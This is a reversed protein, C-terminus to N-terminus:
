SEEKLPVGCWPCFDYRPEIANFAVDNTFFESVKGEIENYCRRCVLISQKNGIRRCVVVNIIRNRGDQNM